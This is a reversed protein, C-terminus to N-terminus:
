PEGFLDPNTVRIFALAVAEAYFSARTFRGRTLLGVAGEQQKSNARGFVRDDADGLEVGQRVLEAVAPPLEFRGTCALSLRGSRDAVACWACAFMRGGHEDVGGELGVGYSAGAVAALARSARAEAGAIMEEDGHPQASVGSPVHVGTAEVEGLMRAAGDRAAHVKAPNTSGVAIRVPAVEANDVIGAHM